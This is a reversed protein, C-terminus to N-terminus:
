SHVIVLENKTCEPSTKSTLQFISCLKTEGVKSARTKQYSEESSSIPVSLNILTLVVLSIEPSELADM